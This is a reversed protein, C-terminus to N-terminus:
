TTPWKRTPPESSGAACTAFPIPRKARQRRSGSSSVRASYDQSKGLDLGVTYEVSREATTVPLPTAAEVAQRERFAGFGPTLPQGAMM